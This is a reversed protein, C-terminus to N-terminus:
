CLLQLAILVTLCTTSLETEKDINLSRVLKEKVKVNQLLGNREQGELQQVLVGALTFM